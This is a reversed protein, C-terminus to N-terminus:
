ILNKIISTFLLINVGMTQKCGSSMPDESEQKINVYAPSDDNWQIICEWKVQLKENRESPSDEDWQIIREEKIQLNDNGDQSPEQKIRVDANQEIEHSKM